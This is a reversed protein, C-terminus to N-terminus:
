YRLKKVKGLNEKVSNFGTSYPLTIDTILNETISQYYDVKLSLGKFKPIWDLIIILNLNGNYHMIQLVM